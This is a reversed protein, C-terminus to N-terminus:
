CVEFRMDELYIEKGIVATIWYEYIQRIFEKFWFITLSSSFLYQLLCEHFPTSTNIYKIHYSCYVQQLLLLMLIDCVYRFQQSFLLHWCHLLVHGITIYWNADSWKDKWSEVQNSRFKWLINHSTRFEMMRISKHAGSTRKEIIDLGDLYLFTDLLSSSFQNVNWRLATDNPWQTKVSSSDM